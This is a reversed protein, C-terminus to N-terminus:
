SNTLKNKLDYEDANIPQNEKLLVLGRYFQAYDNCYECWSKEKKSWFATLFNNKSNVQEYREKFKHWLKLYFTIADNLSSFEHEAVINERWDDFFWWPEYDGYMEIVQYM